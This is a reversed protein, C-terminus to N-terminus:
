LRYVAKGEVRLDVYKPSAGIEKFYDVAQRFSLVQGEASLTTLFKAPYVIGKAYVEVQRLSAPPIVIREIELGNNDAAGIMKGVFSLFSNSAVVNGNTKIGSDDSIAIDPQDYYNVAFSVGSRDVFYKKDDDIWVAVPKRMHLNMEYQVFGKTTLDGVAEVEPNQAQLATLLKDRDFFLRLREIPHDRYYKEVVTAYNGSTEVQAGDSTIVDVKIVIQVLVFTIVLSAAVLFAFFSGLKRRRVILERAQTRESEEKRYGSITQGRGFSTAPRKKVEQDANRRRPAEKDLALQKKRLM